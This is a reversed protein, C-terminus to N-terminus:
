SNQQGVRWWLFKVDGDSINRKKYAIVLRKKKKIVDGM